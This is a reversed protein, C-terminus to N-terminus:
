GLLMMGLWGAAWLLLPVAPLLLLTRWTRAVTEPKLAVLRTLVLFAWGIVACGVAAAPFGQMSLAVMWQFFGAPEAELVFGAFVAPVFGVAALPLWLLTIILAQRV